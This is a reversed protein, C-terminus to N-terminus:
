WIIEPLGHQKLYSNTQSFHKSGFFGRYASLPSPHPATLVLHKQEDILGRKKIAPAGWLLFVVHDKQTSITTIVADTFQEWGFGQHSFAEHARVTLTTNLLLVGQDAWHELNGSQPIPKGVDAALEKYINVLSPPTPTGNPVSFALGHAQGINHYPDQGLIVVSVKEFSCHSFANFLLKPPPFVTTTLYAERVKTTLLTFYDKTFEEELVKKWSSEMHVNM